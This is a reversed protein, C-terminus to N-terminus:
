KINGDFLPELLNRGKQTLWGDRPNTGYEILEKSALIELLLAQFAWEYGDSDRILYSGDDRNGFYLERLVQLVCEATDSDYEMYGFQSFVYGRYSSYRKHRRRRYIGDESM